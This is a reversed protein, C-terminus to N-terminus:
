RTSTKKKQQKAGNRGNNTSVPQGNRTALFPDKHTPDPSVSQVKGNSEGSVPPLDQEKKRRQRHAIAEGTDPLNKPVITYEVKRKREIRTGDVPIGQKWAAIIKRKDAAYTTKETRFEDPLAMPPVLVECSPPNEKIRIHRSQGVLNDPLVGTSHFYLLTKDLGERWRELKEIANNHIELLHTRRAKIAIIEADLQDALEAQTDTAMEQNTQNEWVEKLIAEEEEPTEATELREWLELAKVSYRALSEQALHSM